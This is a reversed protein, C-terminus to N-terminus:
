KTITPNQTYRRSEDIELALNKTECHLMIDNIFTGFQYSNFRTRSTHVITICGALDVHELGKPM